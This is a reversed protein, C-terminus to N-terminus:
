GDTIEKRIQVRGVGQYYKLYKNLITTAPIDTNEGDFEKDAIPADMRLIVYLIDEENEDDLQNDFYKRSERIFRSLTMSQIGKPWGKKIRVEGGLCVLEVLKEKTIWIHERM